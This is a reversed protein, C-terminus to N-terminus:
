PGDLFAKGQSVWLYPDTNTLGSADWGGRIAAPISLVALAALALAVVRLVESRPGAFARAHVATLLGGAAIVAVAIVRLGVDVYLLPSACVLLAAGLTPALALKADTPLSPALLASLGGGAVAFVVLVAVPVWIGSITDIM